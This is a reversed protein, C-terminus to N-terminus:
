HARRQAAPCPRWTLPLESLGARRAYRLVQPPYRAAPPAVAAHGRPGHFVRLWFLSPGRPAAAAFPLARGLFSSALVRLSGLIRVRFGLSFVVLFPVYSNKPDFPPQPKKQNQGFKKLLAFDLFFLAVQTKKRQSQTEARGSGLCSKWFGRLLASARGPAGSLRHAVRYM